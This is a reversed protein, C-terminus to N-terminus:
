TISWHSLFKKLTEHKSMEREREAHQIHGLLWSMKETEMVGVKWNLVVKRRRGWSANDGEDGWWRCLGLMITKLAMETIKHPCRAKSSYSKHARACYHPVCCSGICKVSCVQCFQYFTHSPVLYGQVKAVKLIFSTKDKNLFCCKRM